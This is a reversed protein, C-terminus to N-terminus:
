AEVWADEEYSRAALELVRAAALVDGLGAAQHRWGALEDRLGTTAVRVPDGPASVAIDRVGETDAVRLRRQGVVLRGDSGILTLQAAHFSGHPTENVLVTTGVATLMALTVPAAPALEPAPMAAASACVAVIEGSLRRVVDILEARAARGVPWGLVTLQPLPGLAPTLREAHDIANWARTRLALTATANGTGAADLLTQVQPRDPIEPRALVISVADALLLAAVRCAEGLPLDLCAGDVADAALVDLAAYGHDAQAEAAWVLSELADPALLGVVDAGCARVAAALGRDSGDTVLALQLPQVDHGDERM